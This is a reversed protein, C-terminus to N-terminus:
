LIRMFYIHNKKDYLWKEFGTNEYLQIAVKNNADVYLYKVNLKKAELVMYTAIHKRRYQEFTELSILVDNYIFCYGAINNTTTELIFIGDYNNELLKIDNDSLDNINNANQIIRKDEPSRYEKFILIDDKLFDIDM